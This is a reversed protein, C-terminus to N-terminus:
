ILSPTVPDWYDSAKGPLPMLKGKIEAVLKSLVARLAPATSPGLCVCVVMEAVDSLLPLHVCPAGLAWPTPLCAPTQRRQPQAHAQASYSTM